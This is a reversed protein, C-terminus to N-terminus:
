AFKFPTVAIEQGWKIYGDDFAALTTGGNSGRRIHFATSNGSVDTIQVPIHPTCFLKNGRDM